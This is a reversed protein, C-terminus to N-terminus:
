KRPNLHKRLIAFSLLAFAGGVIWAYNLALHAAMQGGFLMGIGVGLDFGTYFTSNATGRQHHDGQQVIWTQIAPFGVGYAIGLFLAAGFYVAAIPYLGLAVISLACVISGVMALHITWGRDLLRSCLARSLLFGISLLVFFFGTNEIGNQKGYISIYALMLGYSITTFLMAVAGPIGKVLIFRDLSVVSHAHPTHPPVRILLSMALGIVSTLTASALVWSFSYHDQLLIGVFPGIAMAINMSMGYYGIGEGRRESPTIDIAITNGAPIILGWVFGHLFRVLLFMWIAIAGFYFANFITFLIFSILYLRKRPYQDVLYGSFPRMCLAAIVYASMVVGVMAPSAHMFGILHMPLTPMLLYFAFSMFFNAGFALIYDRTWLPKM